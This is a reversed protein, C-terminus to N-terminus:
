AWAPPLITNVVEPCQQKCYDVMTSSLVASCSFARNAGSLMNRWDQSNDSLYSPKVLMDDLEVAKNLLALAYNRLPVPSDFEIGFFVSSSFRAFLGALCLLVEAQGRATSNKVQYAQIIQEFHTQNLKIKKAETGTLSILEPQSILAQFIDALRNQHSISTLNRKFYKQTIAQRFSDAYEQFDIIQLLSFLKASEQDFQYRAQFLTFTQFLKAFNQEGINQIKKDKLWILNDWNLNRIDPDANKDYLFKDLYLQSVALAQHNSEEQHYFILTKRSEFLYHQKLIGKIQAIVDIKLYFDELKKGEMAFNHDNSGRSMYILQNILTSNEVMFQDKDPLTNIYDMLLAAGFPNLSISRTGAQVKRMLLDNVIFDRLEPVEVYIPNLYLIEELAPVIPDINIRSILLHKIAKSMLEKKLEQYKDNLENIKTLISGSSNNIHNFFRDLSAQDYIVPTIKKIRLNKVVIMGERNLCKKLNSLTISVGSLDAGTLNAEALNCDLLNAKSLNAGTLNARSLNAWHLNAESLDAGTLNARSLNARELVAKSLNVRTLNARSLNAQNLNAESLSAGTLNAEYLIAEALMANALVTQSLDAQNLKSRSLNVEIMNTGSFNV